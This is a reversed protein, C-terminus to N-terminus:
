LLSFLCHNPSLVPLLGLSTNHSHRPIATTPLTGNSSGFEYRHAGVRHRGLACPPRRSVRKQWDFCPTLRSGLGCDKDQIVRAKRHVEM